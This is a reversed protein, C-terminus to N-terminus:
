WYLDYNKRYGWKWLFDRANFKYSRLKKTNKQNLTMFELEQKNPSRFTPLFKDDKWYLKGEKRMSGQYQNILYSELVFCEQNEQHPNFNFYGFEILINENYRDSMWKHIVAIQHNTLGTVPHNLYNPNLIYGQFLKNKLQELIKKYDVPRQLIKETPADEMPLMKLIREPYAFGYVDIQWCLFTLYERNLIPKDRIGYNETQIFGANITRLKTNEITSYLGCGACCILILLYITNKM